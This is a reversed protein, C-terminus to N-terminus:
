DRHGTFIDYPIPFNNFKAVKQTNSDTLGKGPITMHKYTDACTCANMGAAMHLSHLSTQVHCYRRLNCIQMVLHCEPGPVSSKEQEALQDCFSSLPGQMEGATSNM